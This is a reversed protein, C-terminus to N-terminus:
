DGRVFGPDCNICICNLERRSHMCPDVSRRSRVVRAHGSAYMRAVVRSSAVFRFSFYVIWRTVARVDNLNAELELYQLGKQVFSILAGPPIEREPKGPRSETGLAFAAHTFGSELLYRYVLYNMEDSTLSMALRRADRRRRALRVPTSEADITDIGWTEFGLYTIPIKPTTYALAKRFVSEHTKKAYLLASPFADDTSRGCQRVRRM